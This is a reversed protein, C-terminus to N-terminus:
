PSLSSQGSPPPMSEVDTMPPLGSRLSENIIENQQRCRDDGAPLDAPRNDSTMRHQHCEDGGAPLNAPRDVAMQMLVPFNGAPLNAPWAQKMQRRPCRELEREQPMPDSLAPNKSKGFIEAAQRQARRASVAGDGSAHVETERWLSSGVGRVEAAGNDDDAAPVMSAAAVSM